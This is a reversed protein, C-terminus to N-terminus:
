IREVWYKPKRKQHMVALVYIVDDNVRYLISFPFKIVVAKRVNQKIVPYALPNTKIINLCKEVEILFKEGLRYVLDDYYDRGDLLEKSALEHFRIRNM